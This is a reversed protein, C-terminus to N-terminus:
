TYQAPKIAHWSRPPSAIAQPRALEAFDHASLPFHPMQFSGEGESGRTYESVKERKKLKTPSNQLLLRKSILGM